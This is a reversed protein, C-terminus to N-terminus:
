VINKSNSECERRELTSDFRPPRVEFGFKDAIRVVVEVVPKTPNELRGKVVEYQKSNAVVESDTALELMMIM